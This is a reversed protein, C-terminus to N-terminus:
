SYDIVAKTKTTQKKQSSLFVSSILTSIGIIILVGVTLITAINGRQYNKMIKM